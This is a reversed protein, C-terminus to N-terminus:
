YDSKYATARSLSSTVTTVDQNRGSQILNHIRQNFNTLYHFMQKSQIPETIPPTWRSSRTSWEGGTSERLLENQFTHRVDIIVM